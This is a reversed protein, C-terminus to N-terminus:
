QAPPPALDDATDKGITNIIGAWKQILFGPADPNRSVMMGTILTAVAVAIILLLVYELVIQGKQNRLIPHKHSNM